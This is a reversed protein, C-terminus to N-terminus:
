CIICRIEDGVHIGIKELLVKADRGVCDRSITKKVIGTKPNKTDVIVIKSLAEAQEANIMYAGNKIM